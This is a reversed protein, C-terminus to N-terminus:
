PGARPRCSEPRPRVVLALHRRRVDRRRGAPLRRQEQALRAQRAPLAFRHPRRRHRRPQRPAVQPRHCLRPHVLRQPHPLVQRRPPPKLGLLRTRPHPQLRGKRLPCRRVPRRPLSNSLCQDSCCMAIRKVYATTVDQVYSHSVCQCLRCLRPGRAPSGHHLRNHFVACNIISHLKIYNQASFPTSDEVTEGDFLLDHLLCLIISRSSPPSSFSFRRCPAALDIWSTRLLPLFGALQQTPREGLTSPCCSQLPGKPLLEVLPRQLSRSAASRPRAMAASTGPLRIVRINVASHRSLFVFPYHLRNYSM